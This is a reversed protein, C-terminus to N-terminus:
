IFFTPIIYSIVWVYIICIYIRVKSDYFIFVTSYFRFVFKCKKHVIFVNIKFLSRHCNKLTKAIRYFKFIIDVCKYLNKIYIYLNHSVHMTIWWNVALSIQNLNKKWNKTISLLFNKRCFINSFDTKKKKVHFINNPIAFILRKYRNL